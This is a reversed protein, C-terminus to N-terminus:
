WFKWWPKGGAIMSPMERQFHALAAKFVPDDDVNSTMNNMRLGIVNHMFSRSYAMDIMDLIYAADEDCLGRASLEQEADERQEFKGAILNVCDRAWDDELSM